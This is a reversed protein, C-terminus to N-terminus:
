SRDARPGPDVPLGDHARDNIVVPLVRISVRAHVRQCLIKGHEVRQQTIRSVLKAM